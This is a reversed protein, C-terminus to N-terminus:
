ADTQAQSLLMLCSVLCYVQGSPNHNCEQMGNTGAEQLLLLVEIIVIISLTIFIHHLDIYKPNRNYYSGVIVM